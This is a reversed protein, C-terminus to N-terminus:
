GKDALSIIGPIILCNDITINFNYTDKLYKCIVPLTFTKLEMARIEALRELATADASSIPTVGLSHQPYQNPSNNGQNYQNAM